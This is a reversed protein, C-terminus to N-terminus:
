ILNVKKSATFTYIANYFVFITKGEGFLQSAASNLADQQYEM